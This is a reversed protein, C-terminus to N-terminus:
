YSISDMAVRTLQIDEFAANGNEIAQAAIEDRLLLLACHSSSNSKTDTLNEAIANDLESLRTLVTGNSSMVAHLRRCRACSLRSGSSGACATEKYEKASDSKLILRTAVLPLSAFGAAQDTSSKTSAM